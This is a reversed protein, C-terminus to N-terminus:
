ILWKADDDIPLTRSNRTVRFVVLLEIITM